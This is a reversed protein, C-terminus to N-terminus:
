FSSGTVPSRSPRTEGSDPFLFLGPHIHPGGREDGPPVSYFPVFSFLSPQLLRPTFVLKKGNIQKVKVKVRLRYKVGTSGGFMGKFTRVSWLGVYLVCRVM